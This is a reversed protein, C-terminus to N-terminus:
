TIAESKKAEPQPTAMDKIHLAFERKGEDRAMEMPDSSFTTRFMFGSKIIDELVKQGDPSSFVAEYKHKIKLYDDAQM